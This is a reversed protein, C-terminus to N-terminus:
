LLAALMQAASIGEADPRFQAIYSLQDETFQPDFYTLQNFDPFKGKYVVIKTADFNNSKLYCVKLVYSNKYIWYNLLKWM